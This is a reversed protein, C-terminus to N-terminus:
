FPVSIDPNEPLLTDYYYCHLVQYLLGCERLNAVRELSTLEMRMKELLEWDNTINDFETCDGMLVSIHPLSTVVNKNNHKQKREFYDSIPKMMSYPSLFTRAEIFRKILEPHKSYRLKFYKIITDATNFISKLARTNVSVINTEQDRYEPAKIGYFSGLMNTATYYMLLKEDEFLIHYPLRADKLVKLKELKLAKDEELEKLVLWEAESLQKYKKYAKERLEELNPKRFTRGARVM